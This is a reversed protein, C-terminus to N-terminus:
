FGIRERRLHEAMEKARGEGRLLLEAATKTEVVVLNAGETVVRMDLDTLAADAGVGPLLRTRVQSIGAYRQAAAEYSVAYAAQHVDFVQGLRQLLAESKLGPVYHRRLVPAPSAALQRAWADLM